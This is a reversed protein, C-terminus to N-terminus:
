ATFENLTELPIAMRLRPLHSSILLQKGCGPTGRRIGIKGGARCIVVAAVQKFRDETRESMIIAQMTGELTLL